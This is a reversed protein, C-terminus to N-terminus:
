PTVERGAPLAALIERSRAAGGPSEALVRRLAALDGATDVDLALSPLREVHVAAGARRAASVHRDFSGAGFAPSIVDPPTLLLGNTGTGHRDPIVAVSPEAVMGAILAELEAPDLAPCDGPVLLAHHAGRDLARAIGLQAAASQGADRPDDVTEAGAAAAARAVEAEGTVAIVGALGGVQSLADLVDAAMAAALERRSPASVAPDLRGKAADLRKIPLVALISM